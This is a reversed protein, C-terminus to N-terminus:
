KQHQSNVKLVDLRLKVLATKFDHPIESDVTLHKDSGFWDRIVLQKLHLCMPFRKSSISNLNPPVGAGYKYDGLIHAALTNACHVRLQHKRGTLPTLEVVTAESSKCIVKINTVAKKMGPPLCTENDGEFWEVTEMRENPPSLGNKVIWTTITTSHGEDYPLPQSLIANYRREIQGETKLMQSIKAAAPKNRAIIICGSTDKDLRHVLKPTNTSGEKELQPIMADVHMKVNTGGQTSLGRPKDLVYIHQDKYLIRQKLDYMADVAKSKFAVNVTDGANLKTNTFRNSSLKSSHLTGSIWINGNLLKQRIELAHLGLTKSVFRQLSIRHLEDPVILAKISSKSM